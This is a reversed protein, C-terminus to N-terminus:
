TNRTFIIILIVAVFVIAILISGKMKEEKFYSNKKM